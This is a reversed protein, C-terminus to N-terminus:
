IMGLTSGPPALEREFARRHPETAIVIAVAQQDLADALYAGVSVALEHDDRYFDLVHEGLELELHRATFPM